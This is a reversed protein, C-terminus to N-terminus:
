NRYCFNVDVGEKILVKVVDLYGNECVVILLIYIVDNLNVNVNFKILEKVIEVYGLKCVIVM